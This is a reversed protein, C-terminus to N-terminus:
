PVSVSPFGSRFRKWVSSEIWTFHHVLQFKPASPSPDYELWAAIACALSLGSFVLASLRAGEDAVRKSLRFLYRLVVLAVILAAGLLPAFTAWSLVTGPSFM